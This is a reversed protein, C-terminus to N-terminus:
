YLVNSHKHYEQHLNVRYIYNIIFYHWDCFVEKDSM